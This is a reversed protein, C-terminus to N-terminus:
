SHCFVEDIDAVSSLQVQWYSSEGLFSSEEIDVSGWVFCSGQLIVGVDNGSCSGLV